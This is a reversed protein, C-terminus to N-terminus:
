GCCVIGCCDDDDDAAGKNGDSLYSQMVAPFCSKFVDATIDKPSWNLTSKTDKTFQFCFDQTLSQMMAAIIQEDSYYKKIPLLKEKEKDIIQEIQDMTMKSSKRKLSRVRSTLIVEAIDRSLLRMELATISPNKQNKHYFLWVKTTADETLRRMIEINNITVFLLGNITEKGGKTMHEILASNVERESTTKSVIAFKEFVLWDRLTLSSLTSRYLAETGGASVAKSDSSQSESSTQKTEEDVKEGLRSRLKRIAVVSLLKTLKSHMDVKEPIRLLEDIESYKICAIISDTRTVVDATRVGGADFYGMEGFWSGRAIDIKINPLVVQLTGNLLLGCFTANEGTKLVTTNAPLAKVFLTSSLAALEESKLQALTLKAEANSTQGLALLLALTERADLDSLLSNNTVDISKGRSWKGPAVKTAM